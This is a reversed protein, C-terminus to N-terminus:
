ETIEFTENSTVKINIIVERYSKFLIILELYWVPLISHKKTITRSIPRPINPLQSKEVIEHSSNRDITSSQM